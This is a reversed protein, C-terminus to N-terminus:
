CNALANADLGVREAILAGVALVLDDSLAPGLVM